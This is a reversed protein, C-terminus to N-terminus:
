SQRVHRGALAVLALAVIPATVGLLMGVPHLGLRAVMVYAALALIAHRTFFKVLAFWRTKRGKEGSSAREAVGEVAGRIARYALGMLGGGAVIGLALRPMQPRYALAGAALVGVVALTIWEVQRFFAPTTM